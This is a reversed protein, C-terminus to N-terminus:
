LGHLPRDTLIITTGNMCSAMYDVDRQLPKGDLAAGTQKGCDAEINFCGESFSGQYMTASDIGSSISSTTATAPTSPTVRSPDVIMFPSFGYVRITLVGYQDVVGEYRIVEGTHYHLVNLTKGRHRTGVNFSVLVGEEPINGSVDIDYSGVTTEGAVKQSTLYEYMSDFPSLEYVVYNTGAPMGPIEVKDTPTATERVEMLTYHYGNSLGNITTGQLTPVDEYKTQSTIPDGVFGDSKIFYWYNAWRGYDARIQYKKDTPVDIIKGDSPTGITGDINVTTADTIMFGYTPNDTYGWIARHNNFIDTANLLGLYWEGNSANSPITFENEYYGTISNYELETDSLRLTASSERNRVEFWAQQIGSTDTIRARLKITEGIAVSDKNFSIESIEPPTVDSAALVASTVSLALCLVLIACVLRRSYFFTM